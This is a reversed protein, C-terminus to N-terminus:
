TYMFFVNGLNVTQIPRGEVTVSKILIYNILNSLEFDLLIKM